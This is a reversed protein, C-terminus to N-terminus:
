ATGLMSVHDTCVMSRRGNRWGTPTEDRQMALDRVLTDDRMSFCTVILTEKQPASSIGALPKMWVTSPFPVGGALRGM